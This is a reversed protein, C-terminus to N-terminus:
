GKLYLTQQLGMMNYMAKNIDIELQLDVEKGDMEYSMSAPLNDTTINPTTIHAVMITDVDNEQFFDVAPKVAKLKENETLIM